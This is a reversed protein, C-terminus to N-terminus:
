SGENAPEGLETIKKALLELTELNPSQDALYKIAQLRDDGALKMAHTLANELVTLEENGARMLQIHLYGHLKVKILSDPMTALVKTIDELPINSSSCDKVWQRLIPKCTEMEFGPNSIARKLLGHIYQCGLFGICGIIADSQGKGEPFDWIKEMIQNRILDHTNPPNNKGKQCMTTLLEAKRWLRAEKDSLLISEKILSRSQEESVRSDGSIGFLALASYYPDPISKANEVLKGVARGKGSKSEQIIARYRSPIHEKGSM